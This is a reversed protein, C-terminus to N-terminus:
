RGEIIDHFTGPYQPCNVNCVRKARASASLSYQRSETQARGLNMHPTQLSSPVSTLSLSCRKQAHTTTHHSAIDPFQNIKEM